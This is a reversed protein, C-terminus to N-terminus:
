PQPSPATQITFLFASFVGDNEHPHLPLLSPALNTSAVPGASSAKRLFATALSPLPCLRYSPGPTVLAHDHLIM